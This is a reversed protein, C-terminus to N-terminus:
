LLGLCIIASEYFFSFVLYVIASKGARYVGLGAPLSKYQVAISQIRGPDDIDRQWGAAQRASLVFSINVFISFIAIM